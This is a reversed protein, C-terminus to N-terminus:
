GCGKSITPFLRKRLAIFLNPMRRGAMGVIYGNQALVKAVERDIGSTAGVVIAKKM